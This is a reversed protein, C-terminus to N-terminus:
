RHAHKEQYWHVFKPIGEQISTVPQYNLLKRAKTIDACTRPMDGPVPPRFEITAKRGLAKEIEGIMSLLNITENEGLNFVDFPSGQFDIASLVGQIIDDVYTFDRAASGDGYVEIPKGNAIL